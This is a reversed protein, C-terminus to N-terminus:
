VGPGWPAPDISPDHVKQRNLGLKEAYYNLMEFVTFRHFSGNIFQPENRRNPDIEWLSISVRATQENYENVPVSFNIHENYGDAFALVTVEGMNKMPFRPDKLTTVPIKAEGKTNTLATGDIEGLSDIVVIRANQIPIGHGLKENVTTTDKVTLTASVSDMEVVAFVSTSISYFLIIFLSLSKKIL